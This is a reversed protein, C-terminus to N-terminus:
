VNKKNRRTLQDRLRSVKDHEPTGPCLWAFGGRAEPEEGHARPVNGRLVASLDLDLESFVGTDGGGGGGGPDPKGGAAPPPPTPAPTAGPRRRHAPHHPAQLRQLRRELVAMLADRDYPLPAVLAVTDRILADKVQHDLANDRNMQPSANVEILWPKLDADFLIDYGFLEFANPQFPVHDEVAVLSKLIVERMNRKLKDVDRGESALRKWLWSLTLKTGGAEREDAQSLPNDRSAGREDVKQISSNTLHINLNGIDALDSSYRVLSMRVFGEEYIFAELPNFSTVLVYIRLDFKYGDLLLPNPIYRQVVMTESYVVSSLDNVLSIGRGRSLGVPKMIWV